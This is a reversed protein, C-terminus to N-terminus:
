VLENSVKYFFSKGTRSGDVVIGCKLTRVSRDKVYFHIMYGYRYGKIKSYDVSDIEEKKINLVEDNLRMAEMYYKYRKKSGFGISESWVRVVEYCSLVYVGTDLRRLHQIVGLICFKGILFLVVLEVLVLQIFDWVTGSDKVCAVLAMGMILFCVILFIVGTLLEKKLKKRVIKMDEDNLYNSLYRNEM